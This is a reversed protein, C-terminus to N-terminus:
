KCSLYGVYQNLLLTLEKVGDPDTVAGLGLKVRELSLRTMGRGHAAKAARM